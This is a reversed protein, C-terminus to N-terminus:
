WKGEPLKNGGNDLSLDGDGEQAGKPTMNITFGPPPGDVADVSFDYKDVLETPVAYGLENTSGDATVTAFVRNTMFYQRELSAVHMMAAQAARRDSKRVAERYAPLAISALIAVIMVVIMLEILTFGANRKM